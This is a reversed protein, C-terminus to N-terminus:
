KREERELEAAVLIAAVLTEMEVEFLMDSAIMNNLLVVRDFVKRGADLEQESPMPNGM